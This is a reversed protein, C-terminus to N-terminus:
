KSKIKRKAKYDPSVHRCRDMQSPGTAITLSRRARFVHLIVLTSTQLSIFYNVQSHEQERSNCHTYFIDRQCLSIVRFSVTVSSCHQVPPPLLCPWMCGFITSSQVRFRHRHIRGISRLLQYKTPLVKNQRKKPKLCDVLRLSESLSDNGATRWCKHHKQMNNTVLVWDVRVTAMGCTSKALCLPWSTVVLCQGILKIDLICNHLVQPNCLELTKDSAGQYQVAQTYNSQGILLLWVNGGWDDWVM